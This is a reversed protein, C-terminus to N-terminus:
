VSFDELADHYKCYFYIIQDCLSIDITKTLRKTHLDKFKKQGDKYYKRCEEEFEPYLFCLLYDIASRYNKKNARNAFVYYLELEGILKETKIFVSSYSNLNLSQKLELEYCQTQCLSMM